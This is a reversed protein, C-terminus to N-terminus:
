GAQSVCSGAHSSSMSHTRASSQAAFLSDEQLPKRHLASAGFRMLPAPFWVEVPCSARDRESPPREAAATLRAAAATHQKLGPTRGCDHSEVANACSRTIPASTILVEAHERPIGVVLM